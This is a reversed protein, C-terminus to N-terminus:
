RVLSVRGSQGSFAFFIAAFAGKYVRVFPIKYKRSELRSPLLLHTTGFCRLRLMISSFWWPGKAPWKEPSLNYLARARRQHHCSMYPSTTLRQAEHGWHAMTFEDPLTFLGWVLGAPTGSRRHPRSPSCAHRQRGPNGRWTAMPRGQGPGSPGSVPWIAPPLPQVRKRPVLLRATPCPSLGTIGNSAPRTYALPSGSAACWLM